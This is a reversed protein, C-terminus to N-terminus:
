SSPAGDDDSSDRSEPAPIPPDPVGTAQGSGEGPPQPRAYIRWGAYAAGGLAGAGTVITTTRVIRRDPKPNRAAVLAKSGHRRARRLHEAVKKDTSANSVGVDRARKGALMLGSWASRAESQVKPNGAAQKASAAFASARRTATTVVMVAKRHRLAFMSIRFAKVPHRGAEKSGTSLVKANM